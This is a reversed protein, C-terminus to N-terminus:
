MRLESFRLCSACKESGAVRTDANAIPSATVQEKELLAKFGHLAIRQYEKSGCEHYTAREHLNVWM